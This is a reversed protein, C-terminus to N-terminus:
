SVGAPMTIANGIRGYDVGNKAKGGILFNVVLDHNIDGTRAITFARITPGNESARTAPRRVTLVAPEAAVDVGPEGASHFLVRKELAHMEHVVSSRTRRRSRSHQLSM